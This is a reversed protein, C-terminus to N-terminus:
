RRHQQKPRHRARKIGQKGRDALHAEACAFNEGAQHQDVHGVEQEIIQHAPWPAIRMPVVKRGGRLEVRHRDHWGQDFAAAKVNSRQDRQEHHRNGPGNQSTGDFPKLYPDDPGCWLGCAERPEIGVV